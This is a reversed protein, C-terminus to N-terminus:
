FRKNIFVNRAPPNFWYIKQNIRKVTPAAITAIPNSIINAGFPSTSLPTVAKDIIAFAM